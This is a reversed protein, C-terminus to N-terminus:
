GAAGLRHTHQPGKTSPNPMFCKAGWNKSTHNPLVSPSLATLPPDKHEPQERASSAAAKLRPTCPWHWGHLLLVRCSDVKGPRVDLEFHASSKESEEEETHVPEWIKTTGLDGGHSDAKTKTQM